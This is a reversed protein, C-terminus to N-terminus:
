KLIFCCIYGVFNSLFTEADNKKAFINFIKRTQLM